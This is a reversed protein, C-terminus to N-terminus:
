LRPREIGADMSSEQALMVAKVARGPTYFLTTSDTLEESDSKNVM